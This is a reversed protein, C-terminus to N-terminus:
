RVTVEGFVEQIAAIVPNDPVAPSLPKPGLNNQVGLLENRASDNGSKLAYSYAKGKVGEGQREVLGSEFLDALVTRCTGAPMDAAKAIADADIFGVALANLVKKRQEEHKVHHTTGLVEYKGSELSIVMERPAPYRSYALLVRQTDSGKNPKLVLGADAVALLDGSGRIETGDNGDSKRAHHILLVAANTTRALDLIPDMEAGVEGAANEERVNWFRALTDVIILGIKQSQVFRKIGQFETVSSRLPACHVHLSDVAALGLSILRDSIDEAHEEVAIILVPVKTTKFGLFLEGALVSKILHYILTSKGAKPHGCLLVLGGAPIYKEWIWLRDPLKESILQPATRPNFKIGCPVSEKPAASHPIDAAKMPQWVPTAAALDTLGKPTGGVSFWDSADKVQDGPLELVKVRDVVNAVSEAVQQAHKRGPEDKDAIIIIELFGRLLECYEHRWKGAGMPNCTAPFNRKWLADADKEGEVIFVTGQGSKAVLLEPLRYPVLRTGNLEWKWSGSGNPVRQRFSKPELRVTQHLLKGQEDKYDYTEVIRSTPSRQTEWGPISERSIRMKDAFDIANGSGCGGHCTWLGNTLEMSLSPNRDEHFPCRGQAQKDNLKRFAQLRSGYFDIWENPSVPTM